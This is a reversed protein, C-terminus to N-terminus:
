RANPLAAELVDGRASGVLRVAKVKDLDVAISQGASGTRPDLRLSALPVRRGATTILEATYSHDRYPRYIAVFIWSPAGRYGYVAGARM